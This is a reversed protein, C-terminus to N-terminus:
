NWYKKHKKLLKERDSKNVENLKERTKFNGDLINKICLLTEAHILDMSNSPCSNGVFNANKGERFLYIKKGGITYIKIFKHIEKTDESNNELYEIDIENQRSGASVLLVGDKCKKIFNEDISREGTSAIIIDSKGINDKSTDYGDNKAKKLKARNVDYVSVKKCTKFAKCVNQGIMGYGVMTIKCDIIARDLEHLVQDLSRYVAAGVHKAEREKIPSRAISYTPIYLNTKNQIHRNHGFTTIEVIGKINKNQKDKELIEKNLLSKTTIGGVEIIIIEKDGFNELTKELYGEKELGDEYNNGPNEIILGNQEGYDLDEQKQSFPKPLFLVEAKSNNKLKLAFEISDRVGHQIMIIGKESLDLKSTINSILPM